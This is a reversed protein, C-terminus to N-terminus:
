HRSPGALHWDAWQGAVTNLWHSLLSRCYLDLLTLNVDKIGQSNVALGSIIPQLRQAIAGDTGLCRLAKQRLVEFAEADIAEDRLTVAQATHQPAVSSEDAIPEVATTAHDPSPPDHNTNDETGGGGAISDVANQTENEMTSKKKKKKKKTPEM